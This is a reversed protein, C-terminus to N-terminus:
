DIRSPSPLGPYWPESDACRTFYEQEPPLCDEWYAIAEQWAALAVPLRLTQQGFACRAEIHDDEYEAYVNLPCAYSQCALGTQRHCDDFAFSVFSAIAQWDPEASHAGDLFLPLQYKADEWDVDMGPEFVWNRGRQKPRIAEAEAKCTEYLATLEDDLEPDPLPCPEWVVTAKHPAWQVYRAVYGPQRGIYCLLSLRWPETSWRDEATAIDTGSFSPMNFPHLHWYLRIDPIRHAQGSTMLKVMVAGTDKLDFETYAHSGPAVLFVDDVTFRVKPPMKGNLVPDVSATVLGVGSAEFPRSGDRFGAMKVAVRETLAITWLCEM